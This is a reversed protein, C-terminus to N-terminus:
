AYSVKVNAKRQRRMAGGIAGFGIIMFAWTAPEPVANMSFQARVADFAPADTSSGISTYRLTDFGMGSFGVITNIALDTSGSGVQTGNLFATWTVNQTSDFFGTGIEFELGSFIQGGTTSMEFFGGRGVGYMYNGSFAGLSPNNQCGAFGCGNNDFTLGTRSFSLGDEVYPNDNLAATSEFDAAAEVTTVASGAGTSLVVAASAPIATFGIASIMAGGFITYINRM